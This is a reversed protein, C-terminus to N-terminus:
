MRTGHHFGRSTLRRHIVVLPANNPRQSGRDIRSHQVYSNSTLRHYPFWVAGAFFSLALLVAYWYWPAEDYKKM